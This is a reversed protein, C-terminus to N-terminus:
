KTSNAAKLEALIENLVDLEGPASEPDRVFHSKAYEYPKVIFFYLVAAMILFAILATLLDGVHVGGPTYSSFDPTGGAKGILDMIVEVMAKMVAAFATAMVFAVALTVLDGQMVFNKFGKV